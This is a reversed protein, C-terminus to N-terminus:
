PIREIGSVHSSRKKTELWRIANGASPRTHVRSPLLLFEFGSFHKFIACFGWRGICATNPPSIGIHCHKNSAIKDNTM